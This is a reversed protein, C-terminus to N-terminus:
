YHEIMIKLGVLYMGFGQVGIVTGNLVPIGWLFFIDM